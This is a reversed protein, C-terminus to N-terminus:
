GKLGNQKDEQILKNEVQQVAKEKAESIKSQICDQCCMEKEPISFFVQTVTKLYNLTAVFPVDKSEPNDQRTNRITVKDLLHDRFTKTPM